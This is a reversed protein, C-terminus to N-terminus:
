SYYRGVIVREYHDVYKVLVGSFYTDTMYGDWGRLDPNGEVRTFDNLRYVNGRYRFFLEDTEENDLEAQEKDTLDYWFLLDRANANTIIELTMM